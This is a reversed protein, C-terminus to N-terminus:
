IKTGSYNKILAAAKHWQFQESWSISIEEDYTNIISARFDIGNEVSFYKLNNPCTFPFSSYKHIKSIYRPQFHFRIILILKNAFQFFIISTICKKVITRISDALVNSM